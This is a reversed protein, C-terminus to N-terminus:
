TLTALLEEVWALERHSAKEFERKKLMKGGLLHIGLSKFFFFIWFSSTAFCAILPLLDQM